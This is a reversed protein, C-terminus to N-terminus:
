KSKNEDKINDEDEEDKINNKDEEEKVDEKQVENEINIDEEKEKKVENEEEVKKGEKESNNNDKDSENEEHIIKKEEEKKEDKEKEENKKKESEEKLRKEEEEYTIENILFEMIENVNKGTKSSALFGKIFIKNDKIFNELENGKEKLEEENLLDEKEVVLIFPCNKEKYLNILIEWIKTNKIEKLESAKSFFIYGNIKESYKSIISKYQHNGSLEHINIKYLINGKQHINMFYDSIMTPSYTEIFINKTWKNIFCTKGTDCDGLLLINIDKGFTIKTTPM